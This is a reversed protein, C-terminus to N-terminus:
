NSSVAVRGPKGAVLAGLRQRLLGTCNMNTGCPAWKYVLKAPRYCSQSGSIVTCQVDHWQLNNIMRLFHLDMYAM